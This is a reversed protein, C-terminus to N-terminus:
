KCLLHNFDYKKHCSPCMQKYDSFDYYKGTLNAWNYRKKSTSGCIECHNAAGLYDRLRMHFASYKANNGKWNPHQSGFPFTYANKPKPHGKKFETTPHNGIQFTGKNPHISQYKHYCIINCFKGNGKKIEAFNVWRTKGCYLCKILCKYGINSKIKKLIIPKAM